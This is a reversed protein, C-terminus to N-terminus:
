RASNGMEPGQTAQLNFIQVKELSGVKPTMLTRLLSEQALEVIWSGYRAPKGVVTEATQLKEGSAEM